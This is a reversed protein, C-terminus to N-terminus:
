DHHCVDSGVKVKPVDMEIAQITIVLTCKGVM